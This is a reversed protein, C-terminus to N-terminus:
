FRDLENRHFELFWAEMPSFGLTCIKVKITLIGSGSESCVMGTVLWSQHHFTVLGILKKSPVTVM